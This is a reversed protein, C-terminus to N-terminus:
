SGPTTVARLVNRVSGRSVGVERAIQSNNMGSAKLRKIESKQFDTLSPRGIHKGKSKAHAMGAKVRERILDREFAAFVSLMGALAKGSPTTLDIAETISVFAVGLENLENLTSVLDPLSRSWRDLKWVVVVDIQRRRAAQMILERNPRKDAGSAKDQLSMALSWGRKHLYEQMTQTQMALTQQDATSVRAYLATKMDKFIFFIAFLYV